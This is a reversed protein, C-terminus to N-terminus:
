SPRALVPAGVIEDGSRRLAVLLAGLYLALALLVIARLGVMMSLYELGGGVVSGLLNSGLAASTDRAQALRM